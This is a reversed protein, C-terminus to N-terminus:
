LFWYNVSIASSKTTCYHWWSKPIFLADGAKLHAVLGGNKPPFLPFKEQIEKLNNDNMEVHVEDNDDSKHPFIVEFDILSTNKQVTGIAPYLADASDPPFLLIRKSGQIQILFNQFPDYHCPSTSGQNGGMWINSRYVTGKLFEPKEPLSEYLCPIERLDVQAVYLRPLPSEQSKQSEDLSWYDLLEFLNLHLRQFNRKDMYTGGAEVPVILPSTVKTSLQEKLTRYCQWKEFVHRLSKVNSVHFVVPVQSKLAYDLLDVGVRRVLGFMKASSVM